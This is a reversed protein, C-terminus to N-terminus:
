IAARASEKAKDSDLFCRKKNWLIDIFVRLGQAGALDLFWRPPTNYVRILNAGLEILQRFDRETQERSAFPENDSNPAFPGYAVGKIFFKQGGLRFFKGDVRVRKQAVVDAVM